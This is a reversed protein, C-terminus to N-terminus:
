REDDPNDDDSQGEEDKDAENTRGTRLARAGRELERGALLELSGKCPGDFAAEMRAVLDDDTWLDLSENKYEYFIATLERLTEAYNAAYLYPSQRFALILKEPAGGGFEVRGTEALAIDRTEMISLAQARTLSLGYPETQENLQWLAQAAHERMLGGAFFSLSREM